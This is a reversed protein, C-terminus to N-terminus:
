YKEFGLKTLAKDLKEFFKVKCDDCLHKSIHYNDLIVNFKGLTQCWGDDYEQTKGLYKNCDDCYFHHITEKTQIIKTELKEM